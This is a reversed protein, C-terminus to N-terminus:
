GSIIGEPMDIAFVLGWKILFSRLDIDFGLTMAMSGRVIAKKYFGTQEIVCADNRTLAMVKGLDGLSKYIEDWESNLRTVTSGCDTALLEVETVDLEEAANRIRLKPKAAKLEAWQEKLSTATPM